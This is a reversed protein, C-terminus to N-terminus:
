FDRTKEKKKKTISCHLKKKIERKISPEWLLLGHIPNSHWNIQSAMGSPLSHLCYLTNIILRESHAMLEWAWQRGRSSVWTEAAGGLLLFVLM